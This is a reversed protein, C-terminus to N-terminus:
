RIHTRIERSEEIMKTVFDIEGGSTIVENYTAAFANQPRPRKLTRSKKEYNLDDENRFFPPNCMSFDYVCNQDIVDLFVTNSNNLKVLCFQLFIMLKCLYTM